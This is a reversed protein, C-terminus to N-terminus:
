KGQYTLKQALEYRTISRRAIATRLQAIRRMRKYTAAQSMYISEHSWILANAITHQQYLHTILERRERTSLNEM